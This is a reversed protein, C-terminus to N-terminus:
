LGYIKLFNAIKRHESALGDGKIINARYSMVIINGLAYGKRSDIRDLSPKSARNFNNQKVGGWAKDLRIGLVPCYEPIQIDTVKITFDIHKERARIKATNWLMMELSHSLGHTIIGIKKKEVQISTDHKLNSRYKNSQKAGDIRKCGVCKGSDSHRPLLHNRKCPKGTYFFRENLLIAEGRNQPMQEMESKSWNPYPKNTRM